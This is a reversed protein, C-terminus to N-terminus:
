FREMPLPPHPVLAIPARGGSQGSEIFFVADQLPIYDAPAPGLTFTRYHVSVRQVVPGWRNTVDIWCADGPFYCVKDSDPHLDPQCVLEPPCVEATATASAPMPVLLGFVLAAAAVLMRLLRM